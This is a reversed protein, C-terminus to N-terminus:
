RVTAQQVLRKESPLPNFADGECLPDMVRTQHTSYGGFVGFSVVVLCLFLLTKESAFFRMEVKQSAAVV